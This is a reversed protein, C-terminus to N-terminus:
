PAAEGSVPEGRPRAVVEERLEFQWRRRSAVRDRRREVRIPVYDPSLMDPADALDADSYLPMGLQSGGGGRVRNLIDAVHQPEGSDLVALLSAVRDIDDRWVPRLPLGLPCSKRGFFLTYAPRRLAEAIREPTTGGETVRILVIDVVPDARYERVSLLTELKPGALAERRTAWRARRDTPPAQVTHYDEVLTGPARIRQAMRYARDLAAHGAEDTRDIGLAAAVLGFVASRAPREFSGRQEGVAIDGMAALPAYLTFALGAPM